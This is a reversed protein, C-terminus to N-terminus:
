VPRASQRLLQQVSLCAQDARAGADAVADIDVIEHVRDMQGGRRHIDITMGKEDRISLRDGPAVEVSGDDLGQAHVHRL